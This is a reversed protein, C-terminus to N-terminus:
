PKASEVPGKMPWAMLATKYDTWYNYKGQMWIVEIEGDRHGWPSVPRVNKHGADSAPALVTPKWSAGGDATQWREVQFGEGVQRSLYLTDPNGHDLIIGGSYCWEDPGDIHGGADALVEADHWAKGDWSARRYTHHKGEPITAYVMVPLGEGDMAIDWIWARAGKQAKYVMEGEAPKVPMQDVTKLKTGDAKHFAGKEYCLYYLNNVANHPHSDNYAILIRSKGDSVVKFYPRSAAILGRPKAWTKGNDDSTVFGSGGSGGRFFLYIRDKEASLQIPNPYTVGGEGTPVIAEEEWASIDLANKSVRCYMPPTSHGSYFVMLRGDSRILISPNGHDDKTTGMQKLKEHLRVTALKGTKHDYASIMIDGISTIYSIYTTDDKRIARPDAFWCWAGDQTIAETRPVADAAMSRDAALVIAMAVLLFICKM